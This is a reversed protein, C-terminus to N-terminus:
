GEDPEGSLWAVHAAALDQIRARVRTRDQAGIGPENSALMVDVDFLRLRKGAASNEPAAIRRQKTYENRWRTMEASASDHTAWATEWLGAKREDATLIEVRRQAEFERLIAQEFDTVVAILADRNRFHTRHYESYIYGIALMLARGIVIASALLCFQQWAPLQKYQGWALTLAPLL